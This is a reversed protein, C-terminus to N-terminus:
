RATTMSGDHGANMAQADLARRVASGVVIREPRM